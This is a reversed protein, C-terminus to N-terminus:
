GDEKTPQEKLIQDHIHEDFAHPPEVLENWEETIKNNHDLVERRCLDLEKRAKRKLRPNALLDDIQKLNRAKTQELLNSVNSSLQAHHPKHETSKLHEHNDCVENMLLFNPGDKVEGTIDDYEVWQDIVCDCTNPSWRQIKIVM